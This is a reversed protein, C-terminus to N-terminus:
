RRMLENYREQMYIWEKVFCGYRTQKWGIRKQQTILQKYPDWNINKHKSILADINQTTTSERILMRLIPEIKNQKYVQKTVTQLAEWGEKNEKCAMFHEITEQTKKCCPCKTDSRAM